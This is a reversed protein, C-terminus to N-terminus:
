QEKFKKGKEVWYDEKGEDTKISGRIWAFFGVVVTIAILILSVLAITKFSAIDKMLVVVAIIIILVIAIASCGLATERDSKGDAIKRRSYRGSSRETHDIEYKNSM